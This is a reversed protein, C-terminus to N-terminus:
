AKSIFLTTQCTIPKKLKGTDKINYVFLLLGKKRAKTIMDFTGKSEGDWLALLADAYEAMKLNRKPGAAKGYKKWEPYFKTVLVGSENGWREGLTDVGEATGCVVETISYGSLKIAELLTEYNHFDRCGAIIVKM